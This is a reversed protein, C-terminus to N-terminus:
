HSPHYHYAPDIGPSYSFFVGSEFSVKQFYGEKDCLISIHYSFKDWQLLQVGDRSDAIADPAGVRAIIQDKKLGKMNGLKRFKNKLERGEYRMVWFLFIASPFLYSLITITM